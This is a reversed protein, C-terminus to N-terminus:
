ERASEIVEGVVVFKRKVDDGGRRLLNNDGRQFTNNRGVVNETGAEAVLFFGTFHLRDNPSGRTPSFDRYELLDACQEADAVVLDNVHAVATRIQWHHHVHVMM